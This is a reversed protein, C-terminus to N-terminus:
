KQKEEKAKEGGNCATLQLSYALFGCHFDADFLKKETFEGIPILQKNTFTQGWFNRIRGSPILLPQLPKKTNKKADEGL